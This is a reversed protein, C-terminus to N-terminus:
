RDERRAGGELRIFRYMLRGVTGQNTILYTTLSTKNCTPEHFTSSNCNPSGMLTKTRDPCTATIVPHEDAVPYAHPSFGVIDPIRDVGRPHAKGDRDPRCFIM